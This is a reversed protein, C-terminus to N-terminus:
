RGRAGGGPASRPRAGRWARRALEDVDAHLDQEVAARVGRARRGDARVGGRERHPGYATGFASSSEVTRRCSCGATRRSARSRRRASRSRPRPASPCARPPARSRGPRAAAASRSPCRAVRQRGALLDGARQRDGLHDARAAASSGGAASSSGRSGSRSGPPAPLVVRPSPTWRPTPKATPKLFM